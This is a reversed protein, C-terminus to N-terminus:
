LRIIMTNDAVGGGGHFGRWGVARGRGALPQTVIHCRSGAAAGQPQRSPPPDTSPRPECEPARELAKAIDVNNVINTKIGNGRGEIQPLVAGRTLASTRARLSAAAAGQRQRQGLRKISM